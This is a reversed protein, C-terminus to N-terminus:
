APRTGGVPPRAFFADMTPFCATGHVCDWLFFALGLDGTWLSYRLQGHRREAAEMQAIAHMAFARARQLWESDGTRRYLKLMAYGNGATGHCLSAGKRLPGAKWTLEGAALLLDDIERTPFDALCNIVGPAGHCHQVLM